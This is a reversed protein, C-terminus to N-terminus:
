EERVSELAARYLQEEIWFGGLSRLCDLEIRLSQIKGERKARILVGIAGTKKLDFVGAIRRAESEDLIVLEARHEIALAIVEAEGDDLDQKLARLLPENSAARIEIWGEVLASEVDKVGPRGLGQEVVERWVAQPITLPSHFDKLLGLRGIASLHILSSSDCIVM